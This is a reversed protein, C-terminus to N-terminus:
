VHARGIEIGGMRRALGASVIVASCRPEESTKKRKFLSLLGM